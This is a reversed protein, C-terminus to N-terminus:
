TNPARRAPLATETELPVLILRTTTYPADPSWGEHRYTRLLEFTGSERLDMKREERDQAAPCGAPPNNPRVELDFTDTRPRPDSVPTFTLRTTDRTTGRICNTDRIGALAYALAPGPADVGVRWQAERGDLDGQFSGSAQHIGWGPRVPSATLSYRQAPLKDGRQSSSGAQIRLTLSVANHFVLLTWNETERGFPQPREPPLPLMVFSGGGFPDLVDHEFVRQAGGMFPGESTRYLQAFVFTDGPPVSQSRLHTELSLRLLTNQCNRLFIRAWGSDTVTFRHSRNNALPVTEDPGVKHPTASSPEQANAWSCSNVELKGTVTICGALLCAVLLASALRRM